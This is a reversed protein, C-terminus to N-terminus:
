LVAETEIASKSLVKIVAKKLTFRNVPKTLVTSIGFRKIENANPPTTIGTLMIFSPQKLTHKDSTIREAIQIGTLRPMHHDIIVVDYPRELYSATRIMALATLGDEAEDVILDLLKCQQKLVKRCTPSDDAILVKMQSYANDTDIESEPEATPSESYPVILSIDNLNKQIDGNIEKMLNKALYLNLAGEAKVKQESKEADALPDIEWSEVFRRTPLSVSLRMTNPSKKEVNIILEGNELQNLAYICVSEFILFLRNDDFYCDSSINEDISCILEVQKQESRYLLRNTVEEITDQLNIQRYDTLPIPKKPKINSALLNILNGLEHGSYRLTQVYDEQKPTLSTSLLLEAMGMVGNLPTRLEHGLQKVVDQTFLALHHQAYVSNSQKLIKHKLRSRTTVCGMTITLTYLLIWYANDQPFNISGIGSLTYFFQSLGLPIFAWAPAPRSERKVLWFSLCFLCTNFLMLLMLTPILIAKNLFPITILCIVQLISFINLFRVLQPWESSLAYIVIKLFSLGILLISANLLIGQITASVDFWSTFYGQCASTFMLVAAANAATYAHLTSSQSAEINKSSLTYIQRSLYSLFVNAIFLAILLGSLLGSKGLQQNQHKIYQDLSKIQVGTALEPQYQTRLFIRAKAQPALHFSTTGFQDLHLETIHRESTAPHSKELYLKNSPQLQFDVSLIPTIRETTLNQIPIRLWFQSAKDFSSLASSQLPSFHFEFEGSTLAEISLPESEEVLYHVSEDSNFSFSTNRIDVDRTATAVEPLLLLLSFIWLFRRAANFM